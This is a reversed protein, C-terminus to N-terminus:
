GDAHVALWRSGQVVRVVRHRTRAPLLLWEGAALAVREGEVDLTAAGDLLVVWEDHPQDYVTDVAAESSLILEVRCDGLRALDSFREGVDPAEAAAALRGRRVPAREDGPGLDDPQAAM